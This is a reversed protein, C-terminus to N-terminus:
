FYYTLRTRIRDDNKFSSLASDINIDSVGRAEISLTWSDGLRRSAELNYSLGDGELDQIVSVLLETSQADNLTLRM